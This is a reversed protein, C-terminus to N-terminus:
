PFKCAERSLYPPMDWAAENSFEIKFM